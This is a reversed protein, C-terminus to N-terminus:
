KALGVATITWANSNVVDAFLCATRGFLQYQKLDATDAANASLVTVQDVYAGDINSIQLKLTTTNVTGQDIIYHLDVTNYGDINICVRTDETLGTPSAWFNLVKPAPQRPYQTIPTVVAVPAGQVSPMPAALMPALLAITLVIALLPWFLRKSM